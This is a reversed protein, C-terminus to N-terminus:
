YYYIFFIRISVMLLDMEEDHQHEKKEKKKKRRNKFVIDMEEDDYQHEKRGKKKKRRNKFGIRM